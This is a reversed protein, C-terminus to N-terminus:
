IILKTQVAPEVRPKPAEAPKQPQKVPTAAEARDRPTGSASLQAPQAPEVFTREFHNERTPTNSPEMTLCGTFLVAPVALLAAFAAKTMRSTQRTTFIIAEAPRRSLREAPNMFQYSQAM